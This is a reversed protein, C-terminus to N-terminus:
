FNNVPLFGLVVFEQFFDGDFDRDIHLDQNKLYSHTVLMEWLIIMSQDKIM